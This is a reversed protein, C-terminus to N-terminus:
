PRRVKLSSDIDNSNWKPTLQMDVTLYLVFM